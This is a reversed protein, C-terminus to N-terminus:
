ENNGSVIEKQHKYKGRKNDKKRDRMTSPKNFKVSHKHVPNRM